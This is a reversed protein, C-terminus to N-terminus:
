RGFGLYHAKMVVTSGVYKFKNVGKLIKGQFRVEMERENHFKIYETKKRSIKLRKGRVDEGM